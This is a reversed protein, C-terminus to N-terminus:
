DEKPAKPAKYKPSKPNDPSDRWNAAAKKFAQKHDIGPEAIKIRKLEEAMFNNYPSRKKVGGAAKPKDSKPM